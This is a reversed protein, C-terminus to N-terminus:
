AKEIRIYKAYLRHILLGSLYFVMGAFFALAIAVFRAVSDSAGTNSFIFIGLSYENGGILPAGIIAGVMSLPASVQLAGIMREFVYGSKFYWFQKWRSTHYVEALKVLKDPVIKIGNIGEIYLPFFSIAAATAIYQQAESKPFFIMFIPVLAVAPTAKIFIALPKIFSDFDPILGVIVVVIFSIVCSWLLGWLAYEATSLVRVLNRNIGDETKSENFLLHVVDTISPINKPLLEHGIWWLFFIFGVGLLYFFLQRLNNKIQM